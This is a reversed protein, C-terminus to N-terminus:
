AAKRVQFAEVFIKITQDVFEALSELNRATVLVGDVHVGDESVTAGAAGLAEHCQEPAAVTRGKLKQAIALLGVGDDIAAIPKGADLFHGIIRRSHANASLKELSREGGPLLLMDYDAGLVSNIQKDVPFFHGWAKGHWGNVLGQETSITRLTAGAKLLARQPETMETEEFGNAVM